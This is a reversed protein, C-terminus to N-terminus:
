LGVLGKVQPWSKVGNTRMEDALAQPMWQVFGPHFAPRARVREFWAQVRPLRGGTWLGEMALADLRNVYPTVAVDAMSFTEGALWSRDTLAAEMRHLYDDYLRIKDAAGPAALGEQIWQWKLTRAARGDAGGKALFTEFDGIGNRLITHRHSVVYTIASCAPHLEEDVAKTWLRVRARELASAPFIPNGPFGTHENSKGITIPPAIYCSAGQPLRELALTIVAEAIFADVAVPLHPGHQEIAGTAVIVPAWAKDPLAAIGDLGMAPLYRDRYKQVHM